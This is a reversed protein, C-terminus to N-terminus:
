LARINLRHLKTQRKQLNKVPLRVLLQLLYQQSQRGALLQRKEAQKGQPSILIGILNIKLQCLLQLAPAPNM